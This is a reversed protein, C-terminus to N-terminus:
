SKMLKGSPTYVAISCYNAVASCVRWIMNLMGSKIIISKSFKVIRLNGINYLKWLHLDITTSVSPPRIFM